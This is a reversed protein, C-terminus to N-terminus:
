WAIEKRDSFFKGSETCETALWVATDAGQEVTREGRPNMDTNVPGPDMSNITISTGKLENSLLRTIVNVSAKSICYAPQGTRMRSLSGAGSSFNIIRGFNNTRMVPIIADCMQLTGYVNTEMTERVKDIDAQLATYGRDILIGANNVLIDVRNFTKQIWDVLERISKINTIDLPHFVVDLGESLLKQTAEQGKKEDRATLVVKIGKCALQRCIEFGIGRNAGTVIAIQQM